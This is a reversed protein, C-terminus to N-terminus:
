SVSNARVWDSAVFYMFVKKEFDEIFDEKEPHLLIGTKRAKSVDENTLSYCDGNNDLVEFRIRLLPVRDGSLYQIAKLIQIRDYNESLINQLIGYTLHLKEPNEYSVLCELIEECIRIQSSDSWDERINQLLTSKTEM